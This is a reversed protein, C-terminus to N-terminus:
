DDGGDSDGAGDNDCDDGDDGDVDYAVGTAGGGRDERDPEGLEGDISGVVTAITNTTTPNTMIIIAQTSDGHM